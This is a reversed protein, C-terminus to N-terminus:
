YARLVADDPVSLDIDELIAAPSKSQNFLDIVEKRVSYLRGKGIIRENYTVPKVYNFLVKDLQVGEVPDQVFSCEIMELRYEGFGDLHTYNIRVARRYLEIDKHEITDPFPLQLELFKSCMGYLINGKRPSLSQFTILIISLLVFGVVCWILVKTTMLNKKIKAFDIKAM